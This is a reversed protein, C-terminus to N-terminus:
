IYPIYKPANYNYIKVEFEGNYAEINVTDNDNLETCGRNPEMSNINNIILPIKINSQDKIGYYLWRNSRRYLPKGFLSFVVSDDNNGPRDFSTDINKKKYLIGIQQFDGGSDRTEINIRMPEHKKYELYNQYSKNRQLPPYLPETILAMDTKYNTEEIYKIKKYDNELVNEKDKDKDKENNQKLYLQEIKENLTNNNNNEQIKLYLDKFYYNVFFYMVILLTVTIYIMQTNDM